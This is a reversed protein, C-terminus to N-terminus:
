EKGYHHQSLSLFNGAPDKFWAVKDGNPATWVGSEDQPMHPHREFSAGWQRLQSIADYIDAVEWGLVTNQPPTHAAAKGIRLLTGHADFVLSFGDDNLFNFRLTDRYFAIAQEPKATVLFAVVNKLKLM